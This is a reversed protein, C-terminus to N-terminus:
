SKGALLRQKMNRRCAMHHYISVFSLYLYRVELVDPRLLRKLKIRDGLLPSLEKLDDDSLQLFVSGDIKHQLIKELIPKEVGATGLFACLEEVSMTAITKRGRTRGDMSTAMLCTSCNAFWM